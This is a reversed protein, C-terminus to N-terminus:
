AVGAKRHLPIEIIASTGTATPALEFRYVGAYMRELRARTNTLGIGSSAGIERDSGRGDGSDRVVMRLHSDAREITVVVQGATAGIGHRVANEVLPQLILNPVLADEVGPEVHVEVSLRDGFRVQEIQLYREILDIEQHVTVEQAGDSRLLIRLLDGLGALMTTAAAKDDTRVLGSITNLANFLFHPRIQMQLAQLQARSVQAELESARVRRDLYLQYYRSAHEVAVVGAYFFADVFSYRWMEQWFTLQPTGTYDHIAMGLAGDLALVVLLAGTHVVLALRWTKQELPFRRSLWSVPPTLASWFPVVTFVLLLWNATIHLEGSTSRIYISLANVLQVVTWVAIIIAMRRLWSRARSSRRDRTMSVARAAHGGGRTNELVALENIAVVDTQQGNHPTSPSRPLRQLSRHSRRQSGDNTRSPGIEVRWATCAHAHATCPAVVHSAHPMVIKRRRIGVITQLKRADDRIAEITLDDESTSAAATHPDAHPELL